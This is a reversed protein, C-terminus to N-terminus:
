ASIQNHKSIAEEVVVQGAIFVSSILVMVIGLVTGGVDVSGAGGGSTVVSALGVLIFGLAVLIVGLVHHRYIERKLFIKSFICTFIIGVGRLMQQVSAPILLYSVIALSSACSDM